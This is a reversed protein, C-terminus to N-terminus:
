VKCMLGNINWTDNALMIYIGNEVEVFFDAIM